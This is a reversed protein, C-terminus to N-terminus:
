RVGVPVRNTALWQKWRAVAPRRADDAEWYRYGFDYGTLRGLGQISYFRVAPDDSDLDRVMLPVDARDDRDVDQKIGPIKREPDDSAVSPPGVDNRCGAVAAAAVPLLWVLPRTWRTM